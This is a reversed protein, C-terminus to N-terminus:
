GPLALEGSWTAVTGHSWVGVGEGAPIQPDWVESGVATWVSVALVVSLFGGSLRSAGPGFTGPGREQESMFWPEIALDRYGTWRPSWSRLLTLLKELLTPLARRLM